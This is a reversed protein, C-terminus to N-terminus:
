QGWIVDCVYVSALVSRVNIVKGIMSDYTIGFDFVCVVYLARIM